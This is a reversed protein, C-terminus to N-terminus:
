VRLLGAARLRREAERAEKETTIKSPLGRTEILGSAKRIEGTLFDQYGRYCYKPKRRSGTTEM